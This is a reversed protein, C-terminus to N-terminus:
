PGPAAPPPEAPPHQGFEPSPLERKAQRLADAQRPYWRRWTSVESLLDDHEQARQVLWGWPVIAQGGDAPVDPGPADPGAPASVAGSAATGPGPDGIPRCRPATAAGPGRLRLDDAVAANRRLDQEHHKREEDALARAKAEFGAKWKESTQKMLDFAGQWAADREIKMEARGRDYAADIKHNVWWVGGGLLAVAAIAAWVKPPIGKLFGGAAGRLAPRLVLMVIGGLLGGGGLISIISLM